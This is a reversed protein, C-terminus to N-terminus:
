PLRTRDDTGAHRAGGPIVVVNMMQSQLSSIPTGLHREQGHVQEGGDSGGTGLGDLVIEGVCLHLDDIM